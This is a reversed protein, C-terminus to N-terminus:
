PNGKVNQSARHVDVAHKRAAALVLDVNRGELKDRAVYVMDVLVIYINGPDKYLDSIVSPVQAEVDALVVREKVRAVKEPVPQKNLQGRDLWEQGATMYAHFAGDVVGKVYAERVAPSWSQWVSAYNYLEDTQARAGISSAILLATLLLRRKM